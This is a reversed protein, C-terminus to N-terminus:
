VSGQEIDQYKDFPKLQNDKTFGGFAYILHTCLYPNINQPNFKATGQSPLPQNSDLAVALRDTSSVPRYVSWNTYYCVVRPEAISFDILSSIILVAIGIKHILQM